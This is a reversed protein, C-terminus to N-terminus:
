CTLHFAGAVDKGEERLENFSKVATEARFFVGQVRGSIKVHARTMKTSM